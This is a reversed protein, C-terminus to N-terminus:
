IREGDKASRNASKLLLITSVVYWITFTTLGLYFGLVGSWAFPGSKFFVIMSGPILLVAAWLNFFGFWRPFIPQTSRDLIVAIGIAAWQVINATNIQDFILWALDNAFQTIEPARDLRFSATAFIESPIIFTVFSLVAAGFQTYALAPTPGKMSLIRSMIVAAFAIGPAGAYMLLLMGIRIGTVNGQYGAVLEPASLGPAFPPLWHACLVWGVFLVVVSAPGAWICLAEGSRNM